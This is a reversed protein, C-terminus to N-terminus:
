LWSASVSAWSKFTKGICKNITATFEEPEFLNHLLSEFYEFGDNENFLTDVNVTGTVDYESKANM